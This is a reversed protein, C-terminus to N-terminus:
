KSGEELTLKLLKRGKALRKYVTNETIDLAYAIEAAPMDEYYFLYIVTRFLEPLSMVTDLLENERKQPAAVEVAEDLPVSRKVRASKVVNLARHEAMQILWYKMHTEDNFGGHAAAATFCEMLIDEAEEPVKVIGLAIRYVMNAYQRFVAAANEQTIQFVTVEGKM